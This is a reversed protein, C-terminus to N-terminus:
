EEDKIIIRVITGQPKRSQIEIEIQYGLENLLQVREKVIKSGLSEHKLFADKQLEQAREIGVGDDEIIRLGVRSFLM